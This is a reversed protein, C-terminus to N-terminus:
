LQGAQRFLRATAILPLGIIGTYDSSVIREFLRIGEDEIRYGGASDLPARLEVYAEAETREFPRMELQQVDIATYETGDRESLLVVGNVLRHTRGALRLLQEVCREPTGPKRLLIREGGTELVGVQDACLLWRDGGQRRLAAVKARALTLAFDEASMSPFHVDYSEEDVDPSEQTFPVGLRALLEARYRSSSGLM